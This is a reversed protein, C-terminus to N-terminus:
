GEALALAIIFKKCYGCAVRIAGTQSNYCLEVNSEPHCTSRVYFVSGHRHQCGPKCGHESRHAVIQDLRSKPLVPEDAPPPTEQEANRVPPEGSQYLESKEFLETLSPREPSNPSRM